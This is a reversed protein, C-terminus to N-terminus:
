PTINRIVYHYFFKSDYYYHHSKYSCMLLTVELCAMASGQIVDFMNSM